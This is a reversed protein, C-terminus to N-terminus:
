EHFLKKFSNSFRHCIFFRAHDLAERQWCPIKRTVVLKPDLNGIQCMRPRNTLHRSIRHPPFSSGDKSSATLHRTPAPGGRETRNLPQIQEPSRFGAETMPLAMQRLPAPQGEGAEQVSRQREVSVQRDMPRPCKGSRCDHLFYLGPYWEVAWWELNPM